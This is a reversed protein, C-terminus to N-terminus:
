SFVCEPKKKHLPGLPNKASRLGLSLPATGSPSRSIQACSRGVNQDLQSLRKKEAETLYIHNHRRQKGTNVAIMCVPSGFVLAVYLQIEAPIGHQPAVVLCAHCTTSCIAQGICSIRYLGQRACSFHAGMGACTTGERAPGQSDSKQPASSPRSGSKRAGALHSNCPISHLASTQFSFWLAVLSQTGVDPLPGKFDRQIEQQTPVAGAQRQLTKNWLSLYPLCRRTHQLNYLALNVAHNTRKKLHPWCTQSAALQLALQRLGCM